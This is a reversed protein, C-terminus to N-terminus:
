EGMSRINMRLPKLEAPRTVSGMHHNVWSPRSNGYFGVEGLAPILSRIKKAKSGAPPQFGAPAGFIYQFALVSALLALITFTIVNNSQLPNTSSAKDDKHFTQLISAPIFGEVGQSPM